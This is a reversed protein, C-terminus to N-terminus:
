KTPPSSPRPWSSPSPKSPRIAIHHILSLHFNLSLNISTCVLTTPYLGSFSQPTELNIPFFFRSSPSTLISILPRLIMLILTPIFNNTMAPFLVSMQENACRANRESGASTTWGFFAYINCLTTILLLLPTPLRLSASRRFIPSPCIDRQAALPLAGPSPQTLTKNVRLINVGKQAHDLM